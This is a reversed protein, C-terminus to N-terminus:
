RSIRISIINNIVVFSMSCIITKRILNIIKLCSSPFIQLELLWGESVPYFGKKNWFREILLKMFEAPGVM